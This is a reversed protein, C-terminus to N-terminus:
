LEPRLLTCHWAGFNIDALLKKLRIIKKGQFDYLLKGERLVCKRLSTKAGELLVLDVKFPAAISEALGYAKLYLEESVGEVALDIDSSLQFDGRALSGFLYIRNVNYKVALNSAIECAKELAMKTIRRLDEEERAIQKLHGTLYKDFDCQM